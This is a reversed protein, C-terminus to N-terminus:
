GRGRGTRSGKVWWIIWQDHYNPAVFFQEYDELDMTSFICIFYLRM